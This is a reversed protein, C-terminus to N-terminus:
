KRTHFLIIDGDQVEYTKGVNKKAGKYDRYNVIDASIFNKIFSSHIKGAAEPAKTGYPLTWAKTEKKGSTFFNILNLEKFALAILNRLIPTYSSFDKANIKEEEEAINLKIVPYDLSYEMAVTKTNIVVLAPKLSLLKIDCKKAMISLEEKINKNQELFPLKAQIELLLPNKDKIIRKELRSIDALILETEIIKLDELPDVRDLVHIINEDSFNRILHIILDVESIHSLFQNGLGIGLHAEKMLGAIDVFELSGFIIKESKNFQALEFLRPDEYNVIAVNPEITCFPYNEAKAKRDKALFNLFTSKGVNPLGVIGCSFM